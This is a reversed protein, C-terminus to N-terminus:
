EEETIEPLNWDYGTHERTEGEIDTRDPLGWDSLTYDKETAEEIDDPLNCFFDIGTIEELQKISLSYNSLNVGSSSMTNHETWFGISKYENDKKCLIAMYFYKPVLLGTPTPELLQEEKDITGAKVVFLTDRFEKDNGWGNVLNELKLWIGANHGQLQPHANSIYFTQKNQEKSSQRDNSMCMHGRSYDTSSYQSSHTQYEVPIDPDDMWSGSYRGVNNNPIGDHFQYCTWRQSKKTCDWELSYTVGFDETSKIVLLQDSAEKLHPYELAVARPNKNRNKNNDPGYDVYVFMISDIDSYLFDKSGMDTNTFVNRFGLSGIRRIQNLESLRIDFTTKDHLYYRLTNPENEKPANLENEQAVAWTTILSLLVITLLKRM